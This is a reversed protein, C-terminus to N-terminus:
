RATQKKNGLKSPKVAAETERTQTIQPDDAEKCVLISKEETKDYFTEPERRFTTRTGCLLIEQTHSILCCVLRTSNMRKASRIEGDGDHLRRGGDRSAM